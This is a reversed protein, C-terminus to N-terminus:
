RRTQRRSEALATGGIALVAALVLITRLMTAEWKNHPRESGPMMAM